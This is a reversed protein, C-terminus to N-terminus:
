NVRTEISRQFSIAVHHAYDRIAILTAGEPSQQKLKLGTSPLCPSFLREEKKALAAVNANPLLPVIANLQGKGGDILVLDPLKTADEYRRSVIEKLSAYDDNNTVTRLHFKRFLTPTPSGNTFRVCSGVINRGAMHSIDFCDITHVPKNLRLLQKLMEPLTATHDTSAMTLALAVPAPPTTSIIDIISTTTLGHWTAIFKEVLPREPVEFNTFISRTSPCRRYYSLLQDVPTEAPFHFLRKVLGNNTRFLQLQTPTLIWIDSGTNYEQDILTLRSSNCRDGLTTALLEVYRQLHRAREFNLTDSEAKIETKLEKIFKAPGNTCFQQARKLREKYAALDFDNRCAGACRHMHYYLCGNTIKRNCLRLQFLQEVMDFLIRAQSANTFPGICKEGPTRARSRVLEMRPLNGGKFVFYLFPQGSKLLVNFPPQHTEILQAELLMAELEDSTVRHEVMVAQSIMADTKWDEHPKLYSTVRNKLNKAKGVYLVAGDNSRFFYVGPMNPLTTIQNRITEQM